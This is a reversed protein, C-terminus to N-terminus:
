VNWNDGPRDWERLHLKLTENGPTEHVAEREKGEPDQRTTSFANYIGLGDGTNKHVQM